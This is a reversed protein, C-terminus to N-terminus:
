RADGHAKQTQKAVVGQMWSLNGQQQPDSGFRRSFENLTAQLGPRGTAEQLKARLVWGYPVDPFKEIAKDTTKWAKDWEHTHFFYVNALEILPWSDDSDRQEAAQLAEAAGKYNTLAEYAVARAKYGGADAPAAKIAAAADRLAWDPDGLATLQMSRQALARPAWPNFRLTESLWIMASFPDSNDAAVDGAHWLDTSSSMTNFLAKAKAIKESASCDCHRIPYFDKDSQFIVLMPNEKAHSRAQEALAQMGETSGGWIPERTQMASEYIAYNAPAAALGQEVFREAYDHNEGINAGQILAVYTPTVHPDLEIAKYLDSEGNVLFEKMRRMRSPSTNAVYEEGRLDLAREVYEYGSAAYAFASKPSARKWAELMPRLDAADHLFAQRYIVDLRSPADADKTQADLAAMLRRDLEGAHGERVLQRMDDLSVLPQHRYYCYARVAARDWHSSPVDPYALCRKLPDAIAEAAAAKVMFQKLDEAPYGMSVATVPPQNAASASTAWMTALPMAALALLWRKKM